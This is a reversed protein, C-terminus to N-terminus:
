QHNINNLKLKSKIKLGDSQHASRCSNTNKSKAPLEYKRIEPNQLYKMNAVSGQNEHQARTEIVSSKNNIPINKLKNIAVLSSSHMLHLMCINTCSWGPISFCRTEFSLCGSKSILTLEEM